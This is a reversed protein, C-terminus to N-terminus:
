EGKELKSFYIDLGARFEEPLVNGTEGTAQKIERTEKKENPNVGAGILALASDTTTGEGGGGPSNGGGGGSKPNIRQSKLLLEIAETEVAIAPSGTEGSRLVDVAQLMVGDVARLLDLDKAFRTEGEPLQVIRECVAVIREQLGTQTEGLRTAEQQHAIKELGPRAKEAVRTEERLNVEGELIKLVELIVSPPLSDASKGGPCQGSCAPDVLDEAWRDLNDSWFEAESISVGQVKPIEDGLEDLANVVAAQRMEDFVLKFQNMRRREYYAQMDDMIFSVSQSSQKEVGALEALVTRDAAEGSAPNGFVSDIRESIRDAVQMQQRSAAKLRKVLTSGELNALVTNLEDAIKEFEALLDAQEKVAQDMKEPEAEPQEPQEEENAKAPGVLTTTPLKLGAQSPKKKKKPGDDKAVLDEPPQQSSEVDSITPMKPQNPQGPEQESNNPQGAISARVQGAKPGAPSSQNAAMAKQAAAQKLLDAVSPMRNASIDKLIQLMEAWKELHGVGIDANRSAQRILDEGARSLNALQRGNASEATAQDQLRKAIEEGALEDPAMGRLQKNTEHLRMERDRVDLALRHWKSLQETMWIAHQEPSLVYFVHPASEVRPRNPLYDEAWVRVEIPQPAIGFASASFVGPTQLSNQDPGGPALLREGQAPEGVLTDDIGRWSIGMRKVGFDDAALATFNIQETNLIVSQRPLDQTAVSPPEDPTAKIALEFPQFASLGDRDRWTLAVKRAEGAVALAPSQFSDSDVTVAQDGVAATQLARSARANVIAQSGEVASLIGGRVDKEIPAPLQLYEPLNIKARADVLEPRLKPVLRVSQVYDGVRIRMPREATQPPLQFEYSEAKLQVTMGPLRDIQLSATQPRWRTKGDLSIALAVSEGHPVVVNEGLPQIRAFTYRPTDRWPAVMRALSNWAALPVLAILVLAMCGSVLATISWDRVRSTPAAQNLDRKQAAQAVQEIAAACLVPSRAQESQSDALELVGLLQDGINPERKRLLGAVQKLNRHKWVWRHFAYPVSMWLGVVSFFIAYHISRPTDIVRDITFVVLFAVLVGSLALAFSELMKTTWVRRRFEALQNRLTPPISFRRSPAVSSM